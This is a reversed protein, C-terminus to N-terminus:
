AKNGWRDRKSARGEHEEEEPAKAALAVPTIAREVFIGNQRLTRALLAEDTGAGVILAAGRFSGARAVSATVNGLSNAAGTDVSADLLIGYATAEATGAVLSLAGNDAPVASLVSGRVLVGSAPKLRAVVTQWHATDYAGALDSLTAPSQITTPNAM